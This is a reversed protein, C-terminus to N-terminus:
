KFCNYVQYHRRPFHLFLRDETFIFSMNVPLSVIRLCKGRPNIVAITYNNLALNVNNLKRRRVALNKAGKLSVTSKM